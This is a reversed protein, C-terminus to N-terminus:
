GAAPAGDSQELRYGFGYVPVLNFGTASSLALKRRVASVHVDITRMNIADSKGWVKEFLESRSILRGLNRFLEVAVQCEKRTLVVPNGDHFVAMNDADIEYHAFALRGADSLPYARRLLAEVRALFIARRPPKTLYDDAGAKLATVVDEEADYQTVFLVPVHASIQLRIRRLVELGSIDPVNWDLVFMDYSDRRTSSMLTRGLAFGHPSHNAQKIWMCLLELQAPDDDLLCIRM